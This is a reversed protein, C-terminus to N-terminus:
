WLKIHLKFLDCSKAIHGSRFQVYHEVVTMSQCLHGDDAFLFECLVSTIQKTNKWTIKWSIQCWTNEDCLVEVICSNWIQSYNDNSGLYPSFHHTIQAESTINWEHNPMFNWIKKDLSKHNPVSISNIQGDSCSEYYVNLCYVNWKLIM